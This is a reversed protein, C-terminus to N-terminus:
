RLVVVTCKAHRVVRAATSGLLYDEFGPRHSAIIIADAKKEDALSLIEQSAHGIRVESETNLDTSEAVKELEEIANAKAREQFGGPMQVAVYNPIEEIVNLLVIKADRGGLRKAVELMGGAKDAHSVDVPVIITQYM